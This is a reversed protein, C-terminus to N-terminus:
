PCSLSYSTLEWEQQNPRTSTLKVLWKVAPAFWIRQNWRTGQMRFGPLYRYFARQMRFARFTGAPVTVDEFAEVHVTVEVWASAGNRIAGTSDVDLPATFQWTKGVDLPFEWWKRDTASAISAGDHRLMQQLVLNRDFIFRCGACTELTRNDMEVLDDAVRLVKHTMRVRKEGYAYVWTDGECYTPAQYPGMEASASTAFTILCLLSLLGSVAARM